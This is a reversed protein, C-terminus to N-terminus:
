LKDYSMHLRPMHEGMRAHSVQCRRQENSTAPHHTRVSQSVRTQSAFNTHTEYKLTFGPAQIGPVSPQTNIGYTGQICLSSALPILHMSSVVNSAVIFTATAFRCRPRGRQLTPSRPWCLTLQPRIGTTVGRTVPCIARSAGPMSPYTAYNQVALRWCAVARPSKIQLSGPCSVNMLWSCTM